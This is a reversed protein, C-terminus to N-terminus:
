DLECTLGCSEPPPTGREPCTYSYICADNSIESLYQPIKTNNPEGYYILIRDEEQPIYSRTDSVVVENVYLRLTKNEDKCYQAGTDTTLCDDTLTYGISSIFDALTLGDAHRHIVKDNNDHFHFDEHLIHNLASQYKDDTFDMREDNIYMLFDAHVHVEEEATPKVYFMYYALGVGLLTFSVLALLLKFQHPFM